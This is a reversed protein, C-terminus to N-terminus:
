RNQFIALRMLKRRILESKGDLAVTRCIHHCKIRIYECLIKQVLQIKHDTHEFASDVYLNELSLSSFIVHFLLDSEFQGKLIELKLFYDATRCIEFTSRCARRTICNSQFANHVKDNEIFINRCCACPFKESNEIKEEITYAIHAITLDAMDILENTPIQAESLQRSVEEIEYETFIRGSNLPVAKSRRSTVTLIDSHPKYNPEFERAIMCNGKDSLHLTTNSLLKRMGANFQQCTPNNNSGNLMRMKGFFNELHDQSLSHTPLRTIFNQESLSNYIDMFNRMNIICGQFGTKDISTCLPLLKSSKESRYQLGKIYPIAEDFLNVISRLNEASIPRKLMNEKTESSVTSNFVDGMNNIIRIFRITHEAGIFEPYNQNMFFEMANANTASFTQVALIVKMPNSSWGIHAATMKHVFGLNRKDNFRVLHVFYEWKIKNGQSDFLVKRKALIGRILKVVHSPDFIVNVPIGKVSFTPDFDDSLVCLKAGLIQCLSPNTKFGDFTVSTLVVGRDLIAEIVSTVINSKISADISKSAFFYAVPLHLTENVSSFMFVLAETAMQADKYDIGPINEYGVIKNEVWQILKYISMEDFILGGILREGQAAREAVKRELVGLSFEIIGPKCNINSNSYWARITSSAPIRDDFEKRLYRYAAPSTNNLGICFNRVTEPYAQRNHMGVALCSLIQM